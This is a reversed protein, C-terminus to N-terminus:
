AADRASRMHTVENRVRRAPRTTARGSLQPTLRCAIFRTKEILSGKSTGSPVISLGNRFGLSLM